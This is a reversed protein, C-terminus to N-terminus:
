GKQQIAVLFTEGEGARSSLSWFGNSKHPVHQASHTHAPNLPRTWRDRERYRQREGDREKDREKEEGRRSM